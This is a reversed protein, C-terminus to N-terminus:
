CCLELMGLSSAVVGGVAAAAAASLMDLIAIL